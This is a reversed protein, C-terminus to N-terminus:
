SSSQSLYQLKLNMETIWLQHIDQLNGESSEARVKMTPLDVNTWTIDTSGPLLNKVSNDLWVLFM